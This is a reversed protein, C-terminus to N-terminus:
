YLSIIREAINQKNQKVPKVGIKVGLNLGGFRHEQIDLM